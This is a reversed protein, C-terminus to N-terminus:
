DFINQRRYVLDHGILWTMTTAQSEHCSTAEFFQGHERISDESFAIIAPGPRGIM